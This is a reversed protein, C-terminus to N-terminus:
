NGTKQEDAPADTIEIPYSAVVGFRENFEKTIADQDAPRNRGLNAPLADIWDSDRTVIPVPTTFNPGRHFEAPLDNWDIAVHDNAIRDFKAASRTVTRRTGDGVRITEALAIGFVDARGGATMSKGLNAPTKTFKSVSLVSGLGSGKEHRGVIAAVFLANDEHRWIERGDRDVVKYIYRAGGKPNAQKILRFIYM